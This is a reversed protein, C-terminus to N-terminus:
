KKKNADFDAMDCYAKRIPWAAKQCEPSCYFARRCRNCYLM